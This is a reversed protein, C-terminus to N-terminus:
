KRELVIWWIAKDVVACQDLLADIEEINDLEFCLRDSFLDLQYGAKAAPDHEDERFTVHFNFGLTKKLPYFKVVRGFSIRGGKNDAFTVAVLSNVLKEEFLAKSGDQLVEYTCKDKKGYKSLEMKLKKSMTKGTLNFKTAISRVPSNHPPLTNQSSKSAIEETAQSNPTYVSQCNSPTLAASEELPQSIHTSTRDHTRQQQLVRMLPTSAQKSFDDLRPKPRPGSLFHRLMDTQLPDIKSSKPLNVCFLYFSGNSDLPHRRCKLLERKIVASPVDFGICITRKDRPILAVATNPDIKLLNPPPTNISINKYVRESISHIITQLSQVIDTIDPMIHQQTTGQMRGIEAMIKGGQLDVSGFGLDIVGNSITCLDDWLSDHSTFLINADFGIPIELVFDIFRYDISGKFTCRPACSHVRPVGHYETNVPVRSCIYSLSAHLVVSAAAISLPCKSNFRINGRLYLAPNPANVKCTPQISLHNFGVLFEKPDLESEELFTPRAASIYEIVDTPIDSLYLGNWVSATNSQAFHSVIKKIQHHVFKCDSLPDSEENFNAGFNHKQKCYKSEILKRGQLMHAFSPCSNKIDNEFSDFHSSSTSFPFFVFISHRGINCLDFDIPNYVLDKQFNIASSIHGHIYHKDSFYTISKKLLPHDSNIVMCVERPSEFSMQPVFVGKPDAKFYEQSYFCGLLSYSSPSLPLVFRISDLNCLPEDIADFGFNSISGVAIDKFALIFKPGFRNKRRACLTSLGIGAEATIIERLARAHPADTAHMISSRAVHTFICAFMNRVGISLFHSFIASIISQGSINLRNTLDGLANPFMILFSRNRHTNHLHFVTKILEKIESHSCIETIGKLNAINNLSELSFYGPLYTILLDLDKCAELPLQEFLYPCLVIVHKPGDTQNYWELISCLVAPAPVVYSVKRKQKEVPLTVLQENRADVNSDSM